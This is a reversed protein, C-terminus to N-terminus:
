RRRRRRPTDKRQAAAGAGRLQVELLLGDVGRPRLAELVELREAVDAVEEADLTADLAGVLNPGQTKEPNQGNGDFTVNPEILALERHHDGLVRHEGLREERERVLELSESVDVDPGRGRGRGQSPAASSEAGACAVAGGKSGRAGASVAPPV